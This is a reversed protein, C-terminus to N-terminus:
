NVEIMPKGVCVIKMMNTGGSIGKMDGKTIIVLDGESVAGRQLLEQIIKGNVQVVDVGCVDLNIPCVDRFLTMKACTSAQRSLAFIPISSNIRSMWLPTAGSETLAAIAKVKLHNATYMTSMAIAEDIRGFTKTIRHDSTSAMPHKEAERCVRAMAKVAKDPNIGVATEGSLMVADTGDFVANAVDSVEARTPIPSDIMSEMMQTATIVVKDHERAAKILCKQAAPLSEDGIEVGLDGRAVMIVDAAQIIEIHNDLSEAREMKAIISAKSGAAKLLERAQHIDEAFRPFSVAVYDVQLDAAVLIDQRDKHTLADASLGGGLRNIGKNNSLIGGVKVKCSIQGDSVEKVKLVIRGDDLLLTDNKRVDKPLQKYTIGVKNQTGANAALTADLTFKDGEELTVKGKEFRDIRIKPGQLDAMIGVIRGAKKARERVLEARKRHQEPEGHSFNLRVVDIGAEIMKDLMAVEDTAPGLTAVIKTRKFMTM